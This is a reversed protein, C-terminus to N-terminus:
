AHANRRLFKFYAESIKDDFMDIQNSFKKM